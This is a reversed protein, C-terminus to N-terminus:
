QIGRISNPSFNNSTISQNTVYAEHLATFPVYRWLKVSEDQPGMERLFFCSIGRLRHQATSPIKTIEFFTIFLSDIIMKDVFWKRSIFHPMGCPDIGSGSKKENVDVINM